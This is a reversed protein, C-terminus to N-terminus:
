FIFSEVANMENNEFSLRLADGIDFKLRQKISDPQKNLKQIAVQIMEKSIDLGLVESNTKNVIEFALDGTGSALDLVRRPSQASLANSLKKRWLIDLGFSLIRNLLDYRSAISNFM